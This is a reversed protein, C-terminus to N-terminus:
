DEKELEQDPQANILEKFKALRDELQEIELQESEELEDPVDSPPPPAPKTKYQIYGNIINQVDGLMTDVKALGQRIMDIKDLGDMELKVMPAGDAPQIKELETIAKGFLRNVEDQLDGLEVSYQINVRQGM